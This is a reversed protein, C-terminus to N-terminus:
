SNMGDTTWLLASDLTNGSSDEALLRAAPESAAAAAAAAAAEADDAATTDSEGIGLYGYNSIETPNVITNIELGNTGVFHSCAWPCMFESYCIPPVNFYDRKVDKLQIAFEVKDEFTPL